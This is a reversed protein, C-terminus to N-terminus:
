QAVLKVPISLLMPGKIPKMQFRLMGDHASREAQWESVSMMQTAGARIVADGYGLNALLDTLGRGFREGIPDLGPFVLVDENTRTLSAPAAQTKVAAQTM